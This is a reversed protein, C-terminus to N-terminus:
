ADEETIPEIQPAATRTRTMTAHLGAATLRRVLASAREPDQELVFLTPGSGTLHAEGGARAILDIITGLEPRLRLAPALLDNTATGWETPRLEAFVAGTPLGFPPHVLVVHEDIPAIPEIREGIGTVHAAAVGAALFPVDAGIRSLDRLEDDTPTDPLARWARGLRWGAAADSSGGGLGARVPIWKELALCALEPEGGLGAVLGRWALNTADVPVSPDRDGDIRLGSCGPLLLLRDALDLLVFDSDLEHHGDDRRGTVRLGLNLKAPAELRLPTM